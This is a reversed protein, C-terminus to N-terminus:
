GAIAKRWWAPLPKRTGEGFDVDVWAYGKGSLQSRLFCVAVGIVDSISVRSGSRRTESIILADVFRRAVMRPSLGAREAFAAAGSRTSAGGFSAAPPQDCASLLQRRGHSAATGAELVLGVTNTVGQRLSRGSQNPAYGLRARAELVRRRTQENVDPRNNLARSVTGISVGLHQALQRIGTM